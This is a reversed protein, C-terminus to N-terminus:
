FAAEGVFIFLAIAAPAVAVFVLLARERAEFIAIAALVGAALGGFLFLAGALFGVWAIEIGGFAGATTSLGVFTLASLAGLLLAGVGYPNHTSSEHDRRLLDRRALRSAKRLLLTSYPGHDTM